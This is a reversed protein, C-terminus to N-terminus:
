NTVMAVGAGRAGHNTVVVSVPGTWIPTVRCYLTPNQSLDHCILNANEDYVKLDMGTAADRRVGVVFSEGGRASFSVRWSTGAPVSHITRIPCRPGCLVGKSQEARATEVEALLAADGAAFQAAEAFLDQASPDSGPQPTAEGSAVGSAVPISAIMRAAVIMARSDRMSRAHDALRYALTLADVAEAAPTVRGTAESLNARGTQTAGVPLVGLATAAIALLLRAPVTNRM